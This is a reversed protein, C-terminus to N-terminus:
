SLAPASTVRSITTLKIRKTLVSLGFTLNKAPNQPHCATNIPAKWPDLLIGPDVLHQQFSANGPPIALAQLGEETTPLRGQEKRYQLLAIRLTNMQAEAATHLAAPAIEWLRISLAVLLFPLSIIVWLLVRMLKRLRSTKPKEISPPDNTVTPPDDHPPSMGSM